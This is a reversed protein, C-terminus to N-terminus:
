EVCTRIFKLSIPGKVMLNQELILDHLCKSSQLKDTFEWDYNIILTELVDRAIVLSLSGAPCARPGMGFPAATSKENELIESKTGNSICNVGNTEMKSASSGIDMKYDEDGGFERVEKTDINWKWSPKTTRLGWEYDSDTM